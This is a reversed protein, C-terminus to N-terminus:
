LHSYAIERTSIMPTSFKYYDIAKSRSTKGSTQHRCPSYGLIEEVQEKKQMPLPPLPVNRYSPRNELKSRRPSTDSYTANSYSSVCTSNPNDCTCHKTYRKLPPMCSGFYTGFQIITVVFWGFLYIIRGTLTFCKSPHSIM